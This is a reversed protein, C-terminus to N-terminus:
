EDEEYEDEVVVHWVLGNQPQVTGVYPFGRPNSREYDWGTGIFIYQYLTNPIEGEEPEVMAWLTPVDGQMQVTLPKFKKYSALVERFDDLQYKYITRM